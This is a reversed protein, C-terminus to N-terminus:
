AAAALCEYGKAENPNAAAQLEWTSAEQAYDSTLGYARAALIALNPDPKKTLSLYKEWASTTGRLEKLGATSFAGTNSNYNGGTSANDFRASILSAWAQPDSPNLRTARLASKEQQSIVAGQSNGSGSGTFANLLGGIGNGAGVGFLVLGGGMLVALGLYVM